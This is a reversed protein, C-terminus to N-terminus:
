RALTRSPPEQYLARYAEAFRGLHFFGWRAAVDAVSVSAPDAALLSRRARDLRTRRLHQLPTLDLDRRFAEQLSRPSVGAHAALDALRWPREPESEVLDVVARVARSRGQVSRTITGGTNPQVALLSAILAQEYHSAVLESDFLGGGSGLEDVALAVLRMWGRIGDAALDVMPDFVVTSTGGPETAALQEVADRRIYILLQECGDSWVMDVPETPSGLSAHRRDSAVERQGVRVRASGALPVQVLFFEQFTGPTIRVEDGYRLYNLVVDEGIVAANHVMDLRADPRTLSLGHPCFTAAVEDRAQDLDVTATRPHRALLARSM